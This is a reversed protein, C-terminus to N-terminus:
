LFQGLRSKALMAARYEEATRPKTLELVDAPFLDYPMLM